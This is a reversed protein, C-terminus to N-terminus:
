QRRQHVPDDIRVLGHVEFDVLPLWGRLGQQKIDIATVAWDRRPRSFYLGPEVGIDGVPRQPDIGRGQRLEVLLGPGRRYDQEGPTAGTERQPHQHLYDDGGQPLLLLAQPKDKFAAIVAEPVPVDGRSGSEEARLKGGHQSIPGVFELGSPFAPFCEDMGVVLLVDFASEHFMKAAQGRAEVVFVAQAVALFVPEPDSLSGRHDCPVAVPRGPHCAHDVVDRRAPLGTIAQAQHGGHDFLARGRHNDGIGIADDKVHIVHELRGGSIGVVFDESLLRGDEGRSQRRSLNVVIQPRRDSRSPFPPALKAIAALIPPDNPLLGDDGLHPSAVPFIEIHADLQVDGLLLLGFGSEQVRLLHLGDAGQGASDGVIEIVDQGADQPEVVQNEAIDAVRVM